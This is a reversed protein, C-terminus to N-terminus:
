PATRVVRFGLGNYKGNPSHPSRTASQADRASSNKDGGRKVRDDGRKPGKIDSPVSVRDYDDVINGEDDLRISNYWDWVWEAVNGNMDYLGWANPTKQAVARTEWDSNNCYWAIEDLYPNGVDCSSSIPSDDEESQNYFPGTSGARVAYEWEAETPLRFGLCQSGSFIITPPDFTEVGAISEYCPALGFKRSLANSYEIANFWTVTEVPCDGWCSEPCDEACLEPCYCGEPCPNEESNPDCNEPCATANANCTTGPDTVCGDRYGQGCATECEEDKVCYAYYAPKKGMLDFWQKQTVEHELMLFAREIIKERPQAGSISADGMMFSGSPVLVYGEETICNNSCGDGNVTNLDECSEMVSQIIADGCIGERQCDASCGNGDATVNGDDCTERSDVVGDGCYPEICNSRCSDALTDSNNQGWDCEELEDPIGNGCDRSICVDQECYWGDPCSNTINASCTLSAGAPTGWNFCGTSVAPLLLICFTKLLSLIKM